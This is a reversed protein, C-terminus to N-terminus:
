KQPQPSWASCCAPRIFCGRRMHTSHGRDQTMGGLPRIEDDPQIELATNTAMDTCVRKMPHPVFPSPTTPRLGAAQQNDASGRGM